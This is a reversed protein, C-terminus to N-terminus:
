AKGKGKGTEVEGIKGEKLKRKKSAEIMERRNNALKRGVGSTGAASKIDRREIPSQKLKKKQNKSAKPLDLLYQPLKDLSSSTSSTASQKIVNIVSNPHSSLSSSPSM